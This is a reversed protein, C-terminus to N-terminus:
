LSLRLENLSAGVREILSRHSEGPRPILAEGFHVTVPHKRPWWRGVPMADHNGHLFVPVIPIGHEAAFYAAGSRMRNMRGSRSRTGEPYWILNWGKEAMRDLRATTKKTVGGGREIPVAAFVLSVFSAFLRNTFFYDAAAVAATRHRWPKPMSMLISPTDLHSSHNAVFVVPPKISDFVDRGMVLPATYHRIIPSLIQMQIIERAFQAAPEHAWSTDMQVLRKRLQM